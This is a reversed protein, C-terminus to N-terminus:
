KKRSKSLSPKISFVETGFPDIEDEWNEASNNVAPEDASQAIHLPPPILPKCNGPLMNTETGTRGRGVGRGHSRDQRPVENDAALRTAYIGRGRGGALRRTAGPQTHDSLVSGGDDVVSAVSAWHSSEDSSRHDRPKSMQPVHPKGEQSEAAAAVPTPEAQAAASESQAAVTTGASADSRSFNQLQAQVETQQLGSVGPVLARQARTTLVIRIAEVQLALPSAAAIVPSMIVMQQLLQTMLQKEDATIAEMLQSVALEITAQSPLGGSTLQALLTTHDQCMETPQPNASSKAGSMVTIATDGLLLDDVDEDSSYYVYVEESLDEVRLKGDERSPLM